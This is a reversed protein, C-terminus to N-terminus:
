KKATKKTVKKAVRKATRKTAKKTSAKKTSKKSSAKKTASQKTASGGNSQTSKVDQDRLEKVEKQLAVIQADKRRITKRLVIEIRARQKGTKQSLALRRSRRDPQQVM